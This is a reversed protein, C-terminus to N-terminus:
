LTSSPGCTSQNRGWTFVPVARLKPLGILWNMTHIEQMVESMNLESFALAQSVARLLRFPEDAQSSGIRGAAQDGVLRSDRVFVTPIRSNRSLRWLGAWFLAQTESADSGVKQTVIHHQAHSEYIVQQCQWGFFQLRAPQAPDGEYQEAFVAFAWSDSIDHDAIWEPPKHRQKAQSSGHTFIM